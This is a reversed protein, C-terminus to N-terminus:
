AVAEAKSQNMQKGEQAVALLSYLHQKRKQSCDTNESLYLTVVLYLTSRGCAQRRLDQRSKVELSFVVGGAQRSVEQCIILHCM